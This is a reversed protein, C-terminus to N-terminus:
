SEALTGGGVAQMLGTGVILGSKAGGLSCNVAPTIEENESDILEVGGSVNVMESETAGECTDTITGLITHCLVTFGPLGPKTEENELLMWRPRLFGLLEYHWQLHIPYITAKSSECTSSSECTLPKSESVEEKALDLVLIYYGLHPNLYDVVFLWSCLVDPKGTASMDELLLTSSIEAEVGSTVPTGNLLMEAEEEAHASAALAANFACAALLTLLAIRLKSM